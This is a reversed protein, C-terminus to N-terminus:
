LEHNKDPEKKLLIKKYSISTFIYTYPINIIKNINEKIKEIYRGFFKGSVIVFIVRFNNEKEKSHFIDFGGELSTYGKSFIISNLCKLYSHNEENNINEDIWITEIKSYDKGM